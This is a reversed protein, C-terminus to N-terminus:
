LFLKDILLYMFGGVGFFGLTLKWKNNFHTKHKKFFEDVMRKNITDLLEKQEKNGERITNEVKDMKESIGTMNIELATIRQEHNQWIPMDSMEKDNM